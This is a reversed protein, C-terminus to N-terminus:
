LEDKAQLVEPATVCGAPRAGREIRVAVAESADRRATARGLAAQAAQQQRESATALGRVRASQDNLADTLLKISALNTAHAKAWLANDAKARAEIRDARDNAASKGHWLWAAAVLLLVIAAERPYRMVASAVASAIEIAKAAAGPIFFLAAGIGGIGLASLLWLM